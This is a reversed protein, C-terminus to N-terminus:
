IVTVKSTLTGICDRVRDASVASERGSIFMIKAIDVSLRIELAIGPAAKAPFWVLKLEIVHNAVRPDSRGPLLVLDMRLRIGVVAAQPTIVRESVRLNMWTRM